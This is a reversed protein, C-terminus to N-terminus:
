AGQATLQNLKGASVFLNNNILAELEKQFKIQSYQKRRYPTLSTWLMGFLQRRDVMDKTVEDVTDIDKLLAAREKADLKLSKLAQVLNNRVRQARAKPEDYIDHNVHPNLFFGFVVLYISINALFNLPNIVPLIALAILVAAQIAQWFCWAGFSQRVPIKFKVYMADLGMVLDKGAGHMSAFYDASFESGRLDYIYGAGSQARTPTGAYERILITGYGQSDMKSEALAQVDELKRGSIREYSHLIEVKQVVTEAKGLAESAAAIALNSSVTDVLIEFFTFLHGIEHLYIAAVQEATLEKVLQFGLFMKLPIKSFLGGVKGKRRDITARLTDLYSRLKREGIKESDIYDNWGLDNHPNWFPSNTDLIPPYACANFMMEPENTIKTDTNLGTHKFVIKDIGVAELFNTTIDNEDKMQQIALTLDQFFLSKGQYTVAEMSASLPNQHM